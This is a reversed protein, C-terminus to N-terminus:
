SAKPAFAVCWGEPSIKGSVITCADPPQFNVCGACKNGDKPKDQYQALEPALKEQARATTTVALGIAVAGLGIGTSAKLLGRRTAPRNEFDSSM